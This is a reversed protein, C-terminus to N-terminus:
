LGESRWLVSALEPLAVRKGGGADVKTELEEIAPGPPPGGRLLWVLDRLPQSVHLRLCMRQSSFKGCHRLQVRWM